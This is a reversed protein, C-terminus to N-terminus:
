RKYGVIETEYGENKLIKQAKEAFGAYTIVFLPKRERSYQKLQQEFERIGSEFDLAYPIHPSGSSAIRYRSGPLGSCTARFFSLCNKIKGVDMGQKKLAKNVEDMDVANYEDYFIKQRKPVIIVAKRKGMM